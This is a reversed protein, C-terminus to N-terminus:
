PREGCVVDVGVMVTTTLIGDKNERRVNITADDM